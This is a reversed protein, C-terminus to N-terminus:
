CVNGKTLQVFIRTFESRFIRLYKWTNSCKRACTDRNKKKKKRKYGQAPTKCFHCYFASSYESFQPECMHALTGGGGKRKNEKKKRKVYVRLVETSYNTIITKTSVRNNGTCHDFKIKENLSREFLVDFKIQKTKETTPYTFKLIWLYVNVTTRVIVFNWLGRGNDHLNEFSSSIKTFNDLQWTPFM